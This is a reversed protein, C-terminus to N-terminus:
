ASKSNHDPQSLTSSQPQSDSIQASALGGQKCEEYQKNEENNPSLMDDVTNEHAAAARKHMTREDESVISEQDSM